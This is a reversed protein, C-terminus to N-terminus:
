PVWIYHPALSRPERGKKRELHIPTEAGHRLLMQQGPATDDIQLAAFGQPAAAGDVVVHAQAVHQYSSHDISM